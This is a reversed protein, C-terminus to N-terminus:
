RYVKIKLYGDFVMFYKDYGINKFSYKEIEYYDYDDVKKLEEEVMIKLVWKNLWLDSKIESLKIKFKYINREKKYM